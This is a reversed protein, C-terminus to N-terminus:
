KAPKISEVRLTKQADFTGTVIVKQGAFKQATQQDSLMWASKGDYVVYQAGHAEVCARTCEADNSGMRMGSHDGTACMSDTIVGRIERKGFGSLAANLTVLVFLARAKLARAGSDFM